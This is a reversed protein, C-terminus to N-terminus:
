MCYKLIFRKKSFKFLTFLHLSLFYEDSFYSTADQWYSLRFDNSFYSLDLRVADQTHILIIGSGNKM